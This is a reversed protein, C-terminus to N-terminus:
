TMGGKQAAQNSTIRGSLPSVGGRQPVDREDSGMKVLKRVRRAFRGLFSRRTRNQGVASVEPLYDVDVVERAQYEWGKM